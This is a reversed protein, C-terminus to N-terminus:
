MSADQFKKLLWWKSDTHSHTVQMQKGVLFLSINKDCRRLM